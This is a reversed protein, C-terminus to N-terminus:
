EDSDETSDIQEGESEEELVEVEEVKSHFCVWTQISKGFHTSKKELDEDSSRDDEEGAVEAVRELM